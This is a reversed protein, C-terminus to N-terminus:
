FYDSVSLATQLSHQRAEHITQRGFIDEDKKERATHGQREKCIENIWVWVNTWSILTKPSINIKRWFVFHTCWEYTKKAELSNPLIYNKEVWSGSKPHSKLTVASNILFTDLWLFMLFLCAVFLMILFKKLCLDDIKMTSIISADWM